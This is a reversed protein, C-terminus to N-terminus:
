FLVAALAVVMLVAGAAQKWRFRVDVKRGILLLFLVALVGRTSYVVNSLTPQRFESFAINVLLAQVGLALGAGLVVLGIRPTEVFFSLSDRRMFVFGLSIIGSTGIMLCLWRTAGVSQAQWGTLFDNTGFFLCAILTLGVTKRHIKWGEASGGAVLYVAAVALIVGTILGLTASELGVLMSFFGVIIVKIGLASSHVAIDGSKVSQISFWQGFFFLVGNGVAWWDKGVLHLDLEPRLYGFFIVTTILNAIGVIVGLRVGAGSGRQVCWGLLPHLAAGLFPLIIAGTLM